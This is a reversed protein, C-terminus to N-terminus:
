ALETRCQEVHEPLCVIEQEDRSTIYALVNERAVEGSVIRAPPADPERLRGAFWRARAKDLTWSFGAASEDYCYGRYIQTTPALGGKEPPLEFVCRVDPSSMMERGEPDAMLFERWADMNQHANETDSWVKGLLEWYDPGALHWSINSFAMLRWPREFLFVYTGWDGAKLAGNKAELQAELRRNVMANQIPSHIINYVLPHRLCAGLPGETLWPQLDEHLDEQEGFMEALAKAQAELDM